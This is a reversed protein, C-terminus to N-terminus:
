LRHGGATVGHSYAINMAEDMIHACDDFPQLRLLVLRTSKRLHPERSALAMPRISVLIIWPSLFLLNSITKGAEELICDVEADLISGLM